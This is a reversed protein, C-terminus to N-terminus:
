KAEVQCKEPLSTSSDFKPALVVKPSKGNFHEHLATIYKFGEICVIKLNDKIDADLEGSVVPRSTIPNDNKHKKVYDIFAPISVAALIAVIAIVVLIEILTFGKRMKKRWNM